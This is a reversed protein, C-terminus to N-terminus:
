VAEVSDVRTGLSIGTGGVFGAVGSLVAILGEGMGAGGSPVGAWVDEAVGSDVPEFVEVAVEDALGASDAGAGVVVDLPVFFGVMFGGAVVVMFGGAADVGGVGEVSVGLVLVEDEVEDVAAGLVLVDDVVEDVAAVGEVVVVVDVDDGVGLSTPGSGTGVDVVVFDPLVVVFVSSVGASVMFGGAGVADPVDVVELEVGFDVLM